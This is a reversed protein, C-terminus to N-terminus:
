QVSFKWWSSWAGCTRANCDRVRWVYRNGRTLKSTRAQSNTLDNKSFVLTGKKSGQRVIVEYYASCSEDNWNMLVRRKASVAKNPPATLFPVAPTGCNQPTQTPTSTPMNTPPTTTLTPSRTASSTASPTASPPPPGNASFSRVIETTHGAKDQIQVTMVAQLTTFNLAVGLPVSVTGGNTPNIGQAFNYGAANGNITINFTLRLSDNKLGSELDYAAVIVRDVEGANAQERTPSAWLTPRLDDEFWGWAGQNSLDIPAGLDVWRAFSQKESWTLLNAHTAGPTLDIDGDRTNNQRGDLRTNFVKWILLSDRAQFSRMYRTLTPPLFSDFTGVPTGLGYQAQYDQVLRYYSGPFGNIAHNDDHLNLKGDGTDDTHCGACKTALIPQIDRLYEVTTQTQNLTTNTPTGNQQSVQLRPTQL